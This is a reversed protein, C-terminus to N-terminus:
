ITNHGAIELFFARSYRFPRDPRLHSNIKNGEVPNISNLIYHRYWPDTVRLSWVGDNEYTKHYDAIKGRGMMLPYVPEQYCRLYGPIDSRKVHIKNTLLMPKNVIVMFSQSMTLYNKLVEDSYINNFDWLKPDQPDKLLELGSIDIYQESDFLLGPYDIRNIDLAFTNTGSRWFVEPEIFFMIGGLILIYSKDDLNGPIDFYIREKLPSTPTQGRISELPIKIKQLGGFGEFSLIGMQNDNRKRMSTAGDVIYCEEAHDTDSMHVFGNVTTLCDTHIYPLISPMEPRSLVLDKLEILPYNNPYNVGIKCVNVKYKSRYVDNYKAYKVDTSPISAVVTLTRSGIHVFWDALSNQFSGFETRYENMDVYVNSSLVPNSLELYVHSYEYFMMYLPLTSIDADSWQAGITRKLSTVKVYTYM